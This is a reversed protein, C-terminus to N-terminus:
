AAGAYQEKLEPEVSALVQCDCYAGRRIFLLKTDRANKEAAGTTSLIECTLTFDGKCTKKPASGLANRLANFFGGAALDRYLAPERKAMDESRPLKLFEDVTEGPAMELWVFRQLREARFSEPIVTVLRQFREEPLLDTFGTWLFTACIRDWRASRKVEVTMGPFTKALLRVLDMELKRHDNKGDM